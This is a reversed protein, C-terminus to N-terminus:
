SQETVPGIIFNMKLKPELLNLVEEVDERLVKIDALMEQQSIKIMFLLILITLTTLAFFIFQFTTM